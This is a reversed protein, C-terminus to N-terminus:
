RSGRSRSAHREDRVRVSLLRHRRRGLPRLADSYFGTILSASSCRAHPPRWGMTVLLIKAMALNVWGIIIFNIPLGLYCRASAACSRRRAPGRLPARRVRRRDHHRRAAVPARLLVRDAHQRRPAGGSGTAPSATARSWDRRGGAAHRRRVDDRGDVDRGAVVASQARLSLIGGVNKGARRSYYVGIALSVAFYGAIIAWDLSSLHM